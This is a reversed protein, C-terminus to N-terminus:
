NNNHLTLVTLVEDAHETLFCQLPGHLHLGTCVDEAEIATMGKVFIGDEFWVEYTAEQGTKLIRLLKLAWHAQLNAVQIISGNFHVQAVL